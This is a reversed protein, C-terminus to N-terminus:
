RLFTRRQRVLSLGTLLMVLGGVSYAALRWWRQVPEMVPQLFQAPFGPQATPAAVFTSLQSIEGAFAADDFSVSALSPAKGGPLGMQLEVPDQQPRVFWLWVEAAYAQVGTLRLPPLDGDVVVLGRRQAWPIVSLEIYKDSRSIGGSELDGVWLFSKEGGIIEFEENLRVIRISRVDGQADALVKLKFIPIAYHELILPWLHDGALPGDRMPGLAAPTEYADRWAEEVFWASAHLIPVEAAGAITLRIFRRAGPDCRLENIELFWGDRLERHIVQDKGASAYVQGDSSAAISVRGTFMPTLLEIKIRNVPPPTAGRDLTVVLDGGPAASQGTFTLSHISSSAALPPYVIAAELEKGGASLRWTAGKALLAALAEGRLRVKVLEGAPPANEIWEVAAPGGLETSTELLAPTEAPPAPPEARSESFPTWPRCGELLLLFLLM